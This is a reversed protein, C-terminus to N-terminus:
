YFFWIPWFVAWNWNSKKGTQQYHDFYELYHQTSSSLKDDVDKSTKIFNLFQEKTINM